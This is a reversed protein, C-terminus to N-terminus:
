FQDRYLEMEATISFNLIGNPFRVISLNFQIERTLKKKSDAFTEIVFTGFKWDNWNVFASVLRRLVDTYFVPIQQQLV